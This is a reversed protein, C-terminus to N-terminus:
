IRLAKVAPAWRDLFDARQSNKALEAATTGTPQLGFGLLKDKVDPSRVADAMIRSYAGRDGGRAHGAPAFRPTGPAAKPQPPGSSASTNPAAPLFPSRAAGSVALIRVRGAKHQELLDSLTTFVM